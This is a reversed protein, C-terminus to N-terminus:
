KKLYIKQFNIQSKLEPCKLFHGFDIKRKVKQFFNTVSFIYYIFSFIKLRNIMVFIYIIM